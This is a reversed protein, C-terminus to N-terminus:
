SADQGPVCVAVAVAARLAAVHEHLPVCIEDGFIEVLMGTGDAAPAGAMLLERLGYQTLLALEAPDAHPDDMGIHCAGGRLVAATAPYATIDYSQGDEIEALGPVTGHRRTVLETDGAPLASVWWGAAHLGYAATRAVACLRELVDPGADDAAAVLQHLLTIEEGRDRFRRRDPGGDGDPVPVVRGAVVPVTIQSQKARYQAADAARLLRGPTVQPAPLEGALALGCAAGEELVDFARRTLATALDVVDPAPAGVSLVAFEDGGLRAVLAGSQDLTGAALVKALGVLAADGAQHGYRDNIRKLGNVDLVILGVGVGNALHDRVALELQDEFARRNALGTLEDTYALRQVSALHAGQGIAAAAQAAVLDALELDDGDMPPAGIPRTAWLAGWLTGDVVVPVTLCSSKGLRALLDRVQPPTRSDEVSGVRGPGSWGSGDETTLASLAPGHLPEGPGDASGVAGHGAVAHWGQAIPDWRTLSVIDAGLARAAAGALAALVDPGGAPPMSAVFRTLAPLGAGDYSPNGTGM